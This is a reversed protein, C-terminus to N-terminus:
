SFLVLGGVPPCPSLGVGMQGAFVDCFPPESEKNM